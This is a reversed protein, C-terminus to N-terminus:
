REVVRIQVGVAALVKLVSAFSPNGDDNLSKYLSERGLDTRRAVETMGVARAVDGLAHAIGAADDPAEILWADLYLAREKTTRLEAAVDYPRLTLRTKTGSKTGTKARVNTM